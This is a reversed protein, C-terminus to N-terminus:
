KYTWSIDYTYGGKVGVWDFGVISFDGSVFEEVPTVVEVKM